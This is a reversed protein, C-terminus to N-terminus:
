GPQSARIAPHTRLLSGVMLLGATIGAIWIAADSILSRMPYAVAQVTAILHFSVFIFFFLGVYWLEAGRDALRALAAGVLGLALFVILHVGNYALVYAPIVAVQMPDRVGYFLAAGLVAATHFVPRGMLLNAVAFLVVTASYGVVGAILGERLTELWKSNM